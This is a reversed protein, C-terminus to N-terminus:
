SRDTATVDFVMRDKIKVSQGPKLSGKPNAPPGRSYDITILINEGTPPTGFALRVLEEFSIRRGEVRKEEANVIIVTTAKVPRIREAGREGLDVHDGENIPVPAQDARELVFDKDDDVGSVIRLEAESIKRAGWEYGREDITFSFVRDSHFARFEEHGPQRLDVAEDLGVSRSGPRLIEILVHDSAPDFGAQALIQRGTRVPDSTAFERGNVKFIFRNKGAQDPATEAQTM